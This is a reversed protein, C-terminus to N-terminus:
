GLAFVHISSVKSGGDANNYMDSLIAGLENVTLSSEEKSFMVDTINLQIAEIDKANDYTNVTKLYASIEPLKSLGAIAEFPHKCISPCLSNVFSNPIM